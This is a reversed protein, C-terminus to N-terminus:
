RPVVIDVVKEPQQPDLRFYRSHWRIPEEATEGADRIRFYYYSGAPVAANTETLPMTFTGDNRTRFHNIFVFSGLLDVQAGSLPNGRRDRVRGRIVFAGAPPKDAERLQSLVEEALDRDGRVKVTVDHDRISYSIKSVGRLLRAIPRGRAYYHFEYTEGDAQRLQATPFLNIARPSNPQLFEVSAMSARRYGTVSALLIALVAVGVMMGRLSLRWRAGLVNGLVYGMALGAVLLLVLVILLSM